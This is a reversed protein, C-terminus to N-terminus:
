GLAIVRDAMARLETCHTPVWIVTGRKRLHENARALVEALLGINDEDLNGTPEDLVMLPCSGLMEFFAFRLAVAAMMLQGTSLVSIPAHENDPHVVEFDLEPNLRVLYPFAFRRLYQLLHKNLQTAKSQATLMPLCDPHLIERSEELINAAEQSRVGKAQEGRYRELLQGQM